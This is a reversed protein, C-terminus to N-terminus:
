VGESFAKAAVDPPNALEWAVTRRVSEDLPVLERYGLDRRIRSTDLVLHQAFNGQVEVGTPITGDPVEVIRGRWGTASALQQVWRLESLAPVDAMNYTRNAAHDHVVADAIGSAVNEVYGRSVVWRGLDQSMLLEPCDDSMQKVYPLTRRRGTDGPGYVIPLRLVTAPVDLQERLVREVLIKEYEPPRDPPQSDRSGALSFLNSRLEDDEGIPVPQVPGAAPSNFVEFARYVDMSSVAVVRRVGRRCIELTARAHADTLAIMDVVVDPNIDRTSEVFAHLDNRDGHTYSVSAALDALTQGRHFVHVNVGRSVLERVVHSGIFGTGGIVLVRM